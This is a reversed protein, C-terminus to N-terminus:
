ENGGGWAPRQVVITPRPQPAPEPFDEADPLAKEAWCDITIDEGGLFGLTARIKQEHLASYVRSEKLNGRQLEVKMAMGGLALGIVLFIIKQM